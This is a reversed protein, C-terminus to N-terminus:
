LLYFGCLTDNNADSPTFYNYLKTNRNDDRYGTGDTSIASIYGGKEVSPTTLFKMSTITLPDKATKLLILPQSHKFDTSKPM